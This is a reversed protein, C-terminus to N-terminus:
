AERSEGRGDLLCQSGRKANREIEIMAADIQEQTFHQRYLNASMCFAIAQDYDGEFDVFEPEVGVALCAQYRMKGDLIRNEFLVIKELLGNAQIDAKLAEFEADTMPPVCLCIEHPELPKAPTLLALAERLSLHAVTENKTQLEGWHDAIRMYGQATRPSFEFHAGLWPLWDGHRLGAKAQNLLEGARRAHDLATRAAGAAAGHERRIEDILHNDIMTSQPGKNQIAAPTQLHEAETTAKASRHVTRSAVRRQM